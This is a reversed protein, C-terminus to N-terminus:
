NKRKNFIWPLLLIKIMNNKFILNYNNEEFLKCINEMADIITDFM